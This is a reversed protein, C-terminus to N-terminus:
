MNQNDGPNLQLKEMSENLSSYASPHPNHQRQDYHQQQNNHHRSPSHSHVRKHQVKLRKNGIQFGNMQEIAANASPTNDYSVFGFGKSEGTYKDVYVKASIVNGHCDFLTALDADTLDHPLHYIFLNAGPPGEQPRPEAGQASSSIAGSANVNHNRGSGASVHTPMMQQMPYSYYETPTAPHHPHYADYMSMMAPHYMNMMHPPPPMHPPMSTPSMGPPIPSTRSNTHHHHRYGSTNTHSNADSIIQSQPLQLKPPPHSHSNNAFKV